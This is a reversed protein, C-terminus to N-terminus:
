RLGGRAHDQVRDHHACSMQAAVRCATPVAAYQHQHNRPMRGTPVPLHRYCSFPFQRGKDSQFTSCRRGSIAQANRLARDIMPAAVGSFCRFAGDRYAPDQQRTQCHRAIWPTLFMAAASVNGQNRSLPRADSKM